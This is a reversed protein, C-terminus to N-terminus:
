RLWLAVVSGIGIPIAYPLRPGAAGELTLSPMPKVGAIRWFMLLGWVNDYATRMYGSAAAAVLAIVAGSIAMFFAAWAVDVPGLWAGTAALLKVDGAGIGRLAFFPFLLAAGVVWGAVSSALRWPGGVAFAAVFGALAVSFTLVNPVRRYKVDVVSAVVATALVAYAVIDM